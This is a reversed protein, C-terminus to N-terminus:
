RRSGPSGGTRRGRGCGPCWCPPSPRRSRRGPARAEEARVQLIQTAGRRRARDGREGLGTRRAGGISARELGRAPRRMWLAPMVNPEFEAEGLREGRSAAILVHCRLEVRDSAGRVGALRDVGRGFGVGGPVRVLEVVAGEGHEPQRRHSGVNLRRALEALDCRPQPVQHRVSLLAQDAAADVAQAVVLAPLDDELQVAVAVAEGCPWM